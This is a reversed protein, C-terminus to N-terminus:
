KTLVRSFCALRAREEANKRLIKVAVLFPRTMTRNMFIDDEIVNNVNLAECLHVQFFLSDCLIDTYVSKATYM